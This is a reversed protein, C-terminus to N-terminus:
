VKARASILQHRRIFILVRGQDSVEFRKCPSLRQHKRRLDACKAGAEDEALIGIIQKTRADRDSLQGDELRRVRM